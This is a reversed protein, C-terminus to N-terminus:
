SIAQTRSSSSNQGVDLRKASEVSYDLSYALSFGSSSQACFSLVALRLDRM